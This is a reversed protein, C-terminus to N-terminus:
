NANQEALWGAVDKGLANATRNLVSCSSKFGGFFGGRSNRSFSTKHVSQGNKFLEGRASLGKAHGAFANGASMASDITIVAYTQNASLDSGNPDRIITLKKQTGFKEISQSFTTGIEKCESTIRHDIRSEDEYPISQAIHIEAASAWAPILLSLFLISKAKM